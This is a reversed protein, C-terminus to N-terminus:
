QNNKQDDDDVVKYDADYYQGNGSAGGANDSAGAAGAQAAGDPNANKYMQESVAYFAQQLAETDAKIAAIDDGKATEKLKSIAAEIKSKDDASIKDAM